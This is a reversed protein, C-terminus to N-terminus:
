GKFHFEVKPFDLSPFDLLPFDHGALGPLHDAGKASQLATDANHIIKKLRNTDKDMSRLRQAAHPFPNLPINALTALLRMRAKDLRIPTHRLNLFASRPKINIRGFPLRAPGPFSALRMMNTGGLLINPPRRQLAIPLGLPAPAYTQAMFTPGMRTPAMSMVPSYGFALAKRAPEAKAVSDKPKARVSREKTAAAAATEVEDAERKPMVFVLRKEAAAAALAQRVAEATPMGRREAGRCGPVLAVIAMSASLAVMTTLLLKAMIANSPDSWGTSDMKM